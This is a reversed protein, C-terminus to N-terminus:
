YYNGKANNAAAAFIGIEYGPGNGAVSYVDLSFGCFYSSGQTYVRLCVYGDTSIYVSSGSVGGYGTGGGTTAAEWNAILYSYTYIVFAMRIPQAVGYNYGILEIMPMVYSQQPITTKIDIYAYGGDMTFYNGIGRQQYGTGISIPANSKFPM